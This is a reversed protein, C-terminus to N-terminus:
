HAKKAVIYAIFGLVFFVTIMAYFCLHYDAYKFMSEISLLM